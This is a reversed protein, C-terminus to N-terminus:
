MRQLHQTAAKLNLMARKVSGAGSDYYSDPGRKIVLEVAACAMPLAGMTLAPAYLLADNLQRWAQQVVADPLGWDRAIVVVLRHPHGVLVDFQLVRLVQQETAVILEKAKWYGENLEPPDSSVDFTLGTSTKDMGFDLMHAVNIVDRLRRLEEEAKMGLVLCAAGIWKWDHSAEKVPIVNGDKDRQQRQQQECYFYYYRHMLVLATFSTEEGLELVHCGIWLKCLLPQIPVHNDDAVSVLPASLHVNDRCFADDEVRHNPM